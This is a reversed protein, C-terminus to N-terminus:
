STREHSVAIAMVGKDCQAMQEIAGIAAGVPLGPRRRDFSQAFRQDVGRAQRTTEIQSDQEPLRHGM